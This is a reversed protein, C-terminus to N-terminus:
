SKGERTNGTMIRRAAPLMNVVIHKSHSKGASHLLNHAPKRCGEIQWLDRYYLCKISGCAQGPAFSNDVAIIDMYPYGASDLWPLTM